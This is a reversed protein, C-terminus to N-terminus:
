GIVDEGQCELPFYNRGSEDDLVASPDACEYFISEGQIYLNQSLPKFLKTSDPMPIKTKLCTPIEVCEEETPWSRKVFGGDSCFLGFKGDGSNDDDSLETENYRRYKLDPYSTRTCTFHIYFGSQITSDLAFDTELWTPLPPKISAM